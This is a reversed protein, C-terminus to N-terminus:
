LELICHFLDVSRAASPPLTIQPQITDLRLGIHAVEHEVFHRSGCLQYVEKVVSDSLTSQFSVGCQGIFTVSIPM